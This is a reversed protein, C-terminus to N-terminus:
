VFYMNSVRRLTYHTKIIEVIKEMTNKNREKIIEEASNANKQNREKLFREKKRIMNLLRESIGGIRKEKKPETSSLNAKKEKEMKMTEEMMKKVIQNQLNNKDPFENITM